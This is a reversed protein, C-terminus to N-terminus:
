QKKDVCVMFTEGEALTAHLTAQIEGDGTPVKLALSIRYDKIARSVIVVGDYWVNWMNGFGDLVIDFTKVERIDKWESAM